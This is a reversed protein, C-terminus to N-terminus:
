AQQPSGKTRLWHGSMASACSTREFLSLFVTVLESSNPQTCSRLRFHLVCTPLIPMFHSLRPAKRTGAMGSGRVSRSETALLHGNDLTGTHPLHLLPSMDATHDKLNWQEPPRRNETMVLTGFAAVCGDDGGTVYM